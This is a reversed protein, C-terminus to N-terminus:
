QTAITTKPRGAERGTFSRGLCRLDGEPLRGCTRWPGAAIFTANALLPLAHPFLRPWNTPEGDLQGDTNAGWCLVEGASTRACAHDSGSAIQVVDGVGMMAQAHPCVLHEDAENMRECRPHMDRGWCKVTADELLACAHFSGVAIQRAGAVDGVEVAEARDNRTGDGLQGWNNHGWCLVKGAPTRGCGHSYGVGIEALRPADVHEPLTVSREDRIGDLEPDLGWCFLAGDSALACNRTGSGAIAIAPPLMLVKTPRDRRQNTGDGIAGWSPDGWCYVEGKTTLACLPDEGALQAVPGLGGIPVLQAADNTTGDGLEGKDNAGACSVVGLEDAVCTRMMAAVVSYSPTLEVDPSGKPACGILLAFLLSARLM